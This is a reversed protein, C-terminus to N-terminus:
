GHEYEQEENLRARRVSILRVREQRMTFIASWLRGDILGTRMMRLETPHALPKEVKRSAWLEQAEVFDIGHKKQNTASKAPDYEFEM